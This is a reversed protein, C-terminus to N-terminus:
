YGTETPHPDVLVAALDICRAVSGDAFCILIPTGSTRPPISHFEPSNCWPGCAGDFLAFMATRSTTPLHEIRRHTLFGNFAFFTSPISFTANPDDVAGLLYPTDDNTAVFFMAPRSRAAVRLNVTFDLPQSANFSDLIAMQGSGALVSLSWGEEPGCRGTFPGPFRGYASVHHHVALGLQRQHNAAQTDLASFRARQLAPFSLAALVVIIALVVLSELLTLGPRPRLSGWPQRTFCGSREVATRRARKSRSKKKEDFPPHFM